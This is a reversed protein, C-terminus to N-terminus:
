KGGKIKKVFEIAINKVSKGQHDVAYNMARITKDDIHGGLKELATKVQPYREVVPYSVLPAAYYPPFFGKDDQLLILRYAPIRGDTAFGSIVDVEGEKVATYMLGPDFERPQNKFHLGYMQKLGEYGDPRQSFEHTLGCKLVNEHLKLDSISTISLQDAQKKRMCLAYTNNLGFPRLWVLNFRENFEKKVTQYVKEKDAVGTNTLIAILATGTYEPYLDIEGQKLANFCVFTGGLNFKREVALGTESEIMQAMIEGLIVQETFNKSGIVITDKKHRGLFIGPIIVLAACIFFAVAITYINKGSRKAGPTLYKEVGNLLTDFLIALLAAPLAGALIMYNNVMAIGRFIFQGLGGAGVAACLTAIGICTVAAIRIGSFIVPLALPIEIRTLIQWDKMGM